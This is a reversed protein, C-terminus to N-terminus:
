DCIYFFFWDLFYPYIVHDFYCCVMFMMAQELFIPVLRSNYKRIHHKWERVQGHVDGCVTFRNGDPVTVDVLSPLARLMERAQLVIQYAYRCIFCNISDISPLLFFSCSLPFFFLFIIKHSVHRKLRLHLIKGLYRKHLTKQNKFDDMMQRVFKSTVVEGEIRAGTYQPEM